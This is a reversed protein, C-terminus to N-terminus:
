KTNVEPEPVKIQPNAQQLHVAWQFMQTSTWSNKSAEMSTMRVSLKEVQNSLEMKAITVNTANDNQGKIVWGFGGLLIVLLGVSVYTNVSLHQQKYQVGGGGNMDLRPLTDSEKFGLSLLKRLQCVTM